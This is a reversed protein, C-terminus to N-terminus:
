AEVSIEPSPRWTVVSRPGTECSHLDPIPGSQRLEHKATSPMELQLGVRHGGPFKSPQNNRARLGQLATAKVKRIPQIKASAFSRGLIRLCKPEFCLVICTAPLVTTLGSGGGSSHERLGKSHSRIAQSPEPISSRGDPSRRWMMPKHDCLMRGTL